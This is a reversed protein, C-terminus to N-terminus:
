VRRGGRDTTTTPAVTGVVGPLLALAPTSPPEEDLAELVLELEDLDLGQRRALDALISVRTVTGAVGRVLAGREVMRRVSRPSVRFLDAADDETVFRPLTRALAALERQVARTM